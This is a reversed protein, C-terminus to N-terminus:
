EYYPHAHLKLVCMCFFKIERGIYQASTSGIYSLISAELTFLRSAMCPLSSSHLLEMLLFQQSRWSKSSRCLVNM